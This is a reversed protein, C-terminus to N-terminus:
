GGGDGGSTKAILVDLQDVIVAPVDNEMWHESPLEVIEGPSFSAVYDAMVQHIVEDYAPAGLPWGSPTALLYTVPIAPENGRMASTAEYVALQDLQEAGEQWEEHTFRVEPPSLHELSLEDPFNADLLLMGIVQDPYMLAYQYALLGGFSAGLLVYPPEIGAVELMVHLDRVTGEGSLPGPVDDSRGLNARDYACFRYKESIKSPLSMASTSGGFEGDWIYGHLYVVTPSGSGECRMFLRYGGVDFLGEVVTPLAPTADSGPVPPSALGAGPIAAAMVLTVLLIVARFRGFVARTGGDFADRDM